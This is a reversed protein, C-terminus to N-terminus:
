AQWNGDKDLPPCGAIHWDANADHNAKTLDEAGGGPRRRFECHWRWRAADKALEGATNLELCQRSHELLDGYTFLPETTLFKAARRWALRRAGLGMTGIWAKPEPPAPYKM